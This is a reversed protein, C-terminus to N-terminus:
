DDALLLLVDTPVHRLLLKEREKAALADITDAATLSFLRNSLNEVPDRLADYAARIRAFQEPERDPPFRRVLELYRQRIDEERADSNVGLVQHPNDTV